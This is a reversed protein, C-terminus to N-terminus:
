APLALRRLKLMGKLHKQAVAAFADEYPMLLASILSVRHFTGARTTARQSALWADHCTKGAVKRLESVLEEYARGVEDSEAKTWATYYSLSIGALTEPNAEALRDLINQLAV